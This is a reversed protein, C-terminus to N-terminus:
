NKKFNLFQRAYADAVDGGNNDENEEGENPTNVTDAAQAKLTDVVINVKGQLGEANRVPESIANLTQTVEAVTNEAQTARSDLQQNENELTEIRTNIAALNEETLVVNGNELDVADVGLVSNVSKFKNVKMATQQTETTDHLTGADQGTKQQLTAPQGFITDKIQQIIGKKQAPTNEKADIKLEPIEPLGMVNVTRQIAARNQKSIAHTTSIEDVLGKELAETPLIWREEHMLALAAALDLKGNSHNVYKQAIILNIAENSKKESELQEILHELEDSNMQGWAEVYCSCKHVLFACDDNIIVRNCAYCLWTAASACFGVIHATVNGRERLINSIAVAEMVDGGLSEVQMIVPEDAPIAELQAEIWGRMYGWRDIVGSLKIINM